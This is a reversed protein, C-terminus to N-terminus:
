ISAQPTGKLEIKKSDYDRETNSLSVLNDGASTLSAFAVTTAEWLSLTILYAQNREPPQAPLFRQLYRSQVSGPYPPSLGTKSPGRENRRHARAGGGRRRTRQRSYLLRPGM